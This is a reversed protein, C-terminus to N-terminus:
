SVGPALDYNKVKYTTVFDDDWASVRLPGLATEGDWALVRAQRALGEIGTRGVLFEGALRKSVFIAITEHVPRGNITAGQKLWELIMTFGDLGDDAMLASSRGMRRLLPGVYRSFMASARQTTELQAFAPSPDQDIYIRISLYRDDGALHRPKFFGISQKQIEVWPWCHYVGVSLDRLAAAYTVALRRAKESTYQEVSLIQDEPVAAAARAPAALTGGALGGLAAALVVVATIRGRL